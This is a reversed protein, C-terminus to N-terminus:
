AITDVVGGNVRLAAGGGDFRRPLPRQCRHELVALRNLGPDAHRHMEIRCAFAGGGVSADRGRQPPVRM